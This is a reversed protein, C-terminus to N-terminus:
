MKREGNTEGTEDDTTDCKCGIYETKIQQHYFKGLSDSEMFRNFTAVDVNEYDYETGNKFRVRLTDKEPDHGIASFLQSNKIPTMNM